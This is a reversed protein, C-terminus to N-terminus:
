EQVHGAGVRYSDHDGLVGCDQAVPQHLQERVPAEGHDSATLSAALKSCATAASGGSTATTSMRMGGVNVSSPSRAAM